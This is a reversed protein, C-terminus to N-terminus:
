SLGRSADYRARSAMLAGDDGLSANPGRNRLPPLAASHSQLLQTWLVDPSCSLCAVRCFPSYKVWQRGSVGVIYNSSFYCNNFKSIKTDSSM